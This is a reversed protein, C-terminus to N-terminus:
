GTPQTLDILDTGAPQPLEFQDARLPENVVAKSIKIRLSYNEQPRRFDILRPYRGGSEDEFNAYTIDSLVQSQPNFYKQRVLSLDFRDIWVKRKLQATMKNLDSVINLVYFKHTGEQEEELVLFDQGERLALPEIALAELIHQPRLNVPIDKRPKIEQHNLGRIFKMKPPIYIRFEKGDSVMDFVKVKFAQGILRILAPKELLIFGDTERYNSIEGTDISGGTLQYIVTLRLTKIWQSRQEILQILEPLTASKAPLAQEGPKLRSTTKVRFWSCHASFLCVFLIALGSIKKFKLPCCEM